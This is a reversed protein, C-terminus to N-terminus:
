NTISIVRHLNVCFRPVVLLLHLVAGHQLLPLDGPIRLLGLLHLVDDWQVQLCSQM